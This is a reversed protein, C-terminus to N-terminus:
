TLVQYLCDTDEQKLAKLNGANRKEIHHLFSYRTVGRGNGKMMNIICDRLIGSEGTSGCMMKLTELVWEHRKIQSSRDIWNPKLKVANREFEDLLSPLIPLKPHLTVMAKRKESKKEQELLVNARYRRM